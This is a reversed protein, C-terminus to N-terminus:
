PEFNFTLNGIAKTPVGSLMTPAFSWQRAATVASDKLLPHGSPRWVGWVGPEITGPLVLLDVDRRVGVLVLKERIADTFPASQISRRFRQRQTWWLATMLACGTFWVITLICLLENHGRAAAYGASNSQDFHVVPAALQSIVSFGYRTKPTSVFFNPLNLGFRGAISVLLASPVVFKASAILWIAYRARGPANKLLAATTGAAIFLLTAQWLHNAFIPWGWSSWDALSQHVSM